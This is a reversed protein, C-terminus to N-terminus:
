KGGMYQKLFSQGVQYDDDLVMIGRVQPANPLLLERASCLMGNSKVKRLASPVILLGSPMMTGPTAVVVKQHLAVNPAGCVIQTTEKGLDVQCIHLHDSDPHEEIAVVQGVILREQDDKEVQIEKSPDLLQNIKSIIEDTIEVQGDKLGTMHKSAEFVNLGIIQGKHDYLYCIDDIREAHDTQGNQFRCLLIDGVEAKNYFAHLIM